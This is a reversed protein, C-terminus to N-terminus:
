KMSYFHEKNFIISDLVNLGLERGFKQLNKFSLIDEESPILKGSPHNHAIILSNANHLLAHRFLTRPDLVCTNLGGKFLLETTIIVNDSNLYFVVVNEQNYDINVKEIKSFLETSSTISDINVKLKILEEM